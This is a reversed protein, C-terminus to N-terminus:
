SRMLRWAGALSGSIISVPVITGKIIPTGHRVMPDIIIRDEYM